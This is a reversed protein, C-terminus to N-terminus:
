VALRGSDLERRLLAAVEAPPLEGPDLVNRELEGLGSFSSWLREIVAPDALPGGEREDIRALCTALPARLVAFAVQHGAARLADRLPEFFWGPIVIGDVITLYGAEAYGAAAAAVIEMVVRNQEHSEPEWPEVHGARIFSFFRDAEVHVSREAGDALIRAATTKGVGPPGTLILLHIPPGPPGGEGAM